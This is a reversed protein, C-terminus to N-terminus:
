KKRVNMNLKELSNKNLEVDVVIVIAMKKLFIISLKFGGGASFLGAEKRYAFSSRAGYTYFNDSLLNNQYGL